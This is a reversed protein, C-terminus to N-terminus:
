KAGTRRRRKAQRLARARMRRASGDIVPALWKRADSVLAQYGFYHPLSPVAFCM